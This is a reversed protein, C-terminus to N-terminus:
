RIEKLAEQLAALPGYKERFRQACRGWERLLRLIPPGEEPLSSLSDEFSYIMGWVTRRPYLGKAMSEALKEFYRRVITRFEESKELEEVIRRMTDMERKIEEVEEEPLLRSAATTKQLEQIYTRRLFVRVFKEWDIRYNQYKGNKEALRVIGLEQLRRLQELVSPPKMGLAEAIKTPSTRGLLLQLFVNSCSVSALPDVEM